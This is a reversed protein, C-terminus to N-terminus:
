RATSTARDFTGESFYGGNQALRIRLVDDEVCFPSLGGNEDEISTGTIEYTLDIELHNRVAFECRCLFGQFVCTTAEAGFRANLISQYSFCAEADDGGVEQELCARNLSFRHLGSYIQRNEVRGDATLEITGGGELYYSTITERCEPFGMFAFDRIASACYMPRMEWLGVPNGGCADFDEVCQYSDIQELAATTALEPGEPLMEGSDDGADPVESADPADSADPTESADSMDSADPAGGEGAGDIMPDADGDDCAICAALTLCILLSRM